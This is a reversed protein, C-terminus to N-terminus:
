HSRRARSASTWNTKSTPTLRRRGSYPSTNGRRQPKSTIGAQEDLYRRLTERDIDPNQKLLAEIDPKEM